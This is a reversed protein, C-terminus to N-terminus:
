GTYPGLIGNLRPEEGVVNSAFSTIPKLSQRIPVAPTLAPEPDPTQGLSKLTQYVSAIVTSLDAPAVQNKVVYSSVIEAVLTEVNANSVPMGIRLTSHM